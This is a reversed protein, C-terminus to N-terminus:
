LAASAIRKLGAAIGPVYGYAAEWITYTRGTLNDYGERVGITIGTKADTVPYASTYTNRDGPKLYRFAIALASPHAAFGVLNQSNSPVLTSEFVDFGALRGIAGDKIPSNTGFASANRISSDKLLNATYTSSLILSRQAKPMKATDCVTKLDIVDDATFDAALSILGPAGFNALTVSSLIDALVAEALAAGKAFAASEILDVSMQSMETDDVFSNVFKPQGITIQVTDADTDQAAYSGHSTKTAAADQAGVRPITVKEGKKVTEASFDTGFATLPLIESVFGRLVAQSRIDEKLNSIENPM